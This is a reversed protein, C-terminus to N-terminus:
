VMSSAAINLGGVLLVEWELEGRPFSNDETLKGFQISGRWTVLDGAVSACSARHVIRRGIASYAVSTALPTRGEKAQDKEITAVAVKSPSSSM